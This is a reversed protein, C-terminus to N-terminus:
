IHFPLGCVQLSSAIYRGTVSLPLTWFPHILPFFIICSLGLLDILVFRIDRRLELMLRLVASVQDNCRNLLKNDANVKAFLDEITKSANMILNDVTEKSAEM